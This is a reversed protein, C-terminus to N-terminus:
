CSGAEKRRCKRAALQKFSISRQALWQPQDSVTAVDERRGTDVADDDSSDYRTDPTFAYTHVYGFYASTLFIVRM